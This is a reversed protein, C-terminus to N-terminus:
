RSIRIAGMNKKAERIFDRSEYLTCREQFFFWKNKTSKAMPSALRRDTSETRFIPQWRVMRHCPMPGYTRQITQSFFRRKWWAAPVVFSGVRSYVRQIELRNSKVSNCSRRCVNHSKEQQFAVVMSAHLQWITLLIKVFFLM